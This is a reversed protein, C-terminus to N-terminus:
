CSFLLIYTNSMATYVYKLETNVIVKLPPIYTEIRLIV